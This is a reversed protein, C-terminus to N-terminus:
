IFNNNLFMFSLCFINQVFSDTFDASYTKDEDKKYELFDVIENFNKLDYFYKITNTYIEIEKYTEFTWILKDKNVDLKLIKPIWYYIIWVSWSKIPIRGWFKLNM